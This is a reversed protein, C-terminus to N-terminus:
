GCLESLIEDIVPGFARAIRTVEEALEAEFGSGTTLKRTFPQTGYKGARFKYGKWGSVEKFLKNVVPTSFEIRKVKTGPITALHLLHITVYTDKQKRSDLSLYSEVHIGGSEENFWHKKFLHFTVGDPKTAPFGHVSIMWGEKKFWPQAKLAKEVAKFRRLTEQM